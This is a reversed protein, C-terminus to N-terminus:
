RSRPSSCGGGHRATPCSRMRALGRGPASAAPPRPRFAMPPTGPRPVGPRLPSLPRSPSFPQTGTRTPYLARGSPSTAGEGRRRSIRRWEGHCESPSSAEARGLGRAAFRSSILHESHPSERPTLKAAKIKHTQYTCYSKRARDAVRPTKPRPSLQLIPKLLATTLGLRRAGPEARSRKRRRAKFISIQPLPILHLM